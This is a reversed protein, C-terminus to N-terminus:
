LGPAPKPLKDAVQRCRTVSETLIAMKRLLGEVAYMFVQVPTLSGITEVKFWYRQPLVTVSVLGQHGLKMVSHELVDPSRLRLGADAAVRLRGTADVVFIGPQAGRMVALRDVPALADAMEEDLRIDFEYKYACACVPSWKACRKGTGVTAICEAHIAKGPALMVIRVGPDFESLDAQEEPCSFHGVQVDAREDVLVLDASTVPIPVDTLNEVDLRFTVSCKACREACVCEEHFVFRDLLFVDEVDSFRIPVLGLAQVLFDDEMGSSNEEMTVFEIALTPVEALMARRLSNAIAPEVGALLFTLEARQIRVHSISGLSEESSMSTLPARPRFLRCWSVPIAVGWFFYVIESWNDRFFASGPV